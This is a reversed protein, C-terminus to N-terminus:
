NIVTNEELDWYARFFRHVVTIFTLFLLLYVVIALAPEGWIAAILAGGFLFLMREAREMLGIGSLNVGLGEGRARVYSISFTSGLLFIGMLQDFTSHFGIIIGTIIAVDAIRDVVSDLFAGQNSSFGGARAVGGDLMDMFGTLFLSIFAIYYEHAAFAWGSVIGFALGLITIHNPDVGINVLFKYFPNFVKTVTSKIQSLVM